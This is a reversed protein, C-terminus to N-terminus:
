SHMVCSRNRASLLKTNWPIGVAATGAATLVLIGDKPQDEMLSLKGHLGVNYLDCQEEFLSLEGDTLFGNTGRKADETSCSSGCM